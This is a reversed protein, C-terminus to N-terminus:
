QHFANLLRPSFSTDIEPSRGFEDTTYNDAQLRSKM